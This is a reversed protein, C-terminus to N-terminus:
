KRLAKRFLKMDVILESIIAFPFAVLAAVIFVEPTIEADTALKIAILDESIGMVLGVVFFEVLHSLVQRKETVSM